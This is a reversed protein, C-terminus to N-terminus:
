LSPKELQIISKKKKLYKKIYDYLLLWIPFAGLIIVFIYSLSNSINEPVEQAFFISLQPLWSYKLLYALGIIVIILALLNILKWFDKTMIISIIIPLIYFFFFLAGVITWFM